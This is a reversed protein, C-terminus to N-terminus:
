WAPGDPGEVETRLPKVVEALQKATGDVSSQAKPRAALLTRIAEAVEETSERHFTYLMTLPVRDKSHTVLVIRYMRQWRETFSQEVLVATVESLRMRPGEVRWFLTRLDPEIADDSISLRITGVSPITSIALGLLVLLMGYRIMSFRGDQQVELERRGADRLFLQIEHVAAELSKRDSSWKRLIPVKKNAAELDIRYTSEGNSDTSTNLTAWQLNEIQVPKSGGGFQRERELVCSVNDATVKMCRLTGKQGVSVSIWIGLVVLLGGFFWFRGGNKHLVLVDKTQNKIILTRM